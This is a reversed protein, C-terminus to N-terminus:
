IGPPVPFLPKDSHIQRPQRQDVNRLIALSVPNISTSGRLSKSEQRSPRPFGQPTIHGPHQIKKWMELHQYALRAQEFFQKQEPRNQQAALAHLTQLDGIASYANAATYLAEISLPNTSAVSRIIALAENYHKSAKRTEFKCVADGIESPSLGRIPYVPPAANRKTTTPL